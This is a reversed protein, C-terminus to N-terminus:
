GHRECKGKRIKWCVNCKDGEAKATEVYVEDTQTNDLLVEAGSTICLEAFDTDKAIKFLKKGLKLDINAELSSGIIKNARKEEISINCNDRIKKLTIWKDNLSKNQWNSPIKTFKELHISTNNKNIISFIEETTFSLIPAFWKLLCDM